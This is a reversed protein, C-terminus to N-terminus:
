ILVGLSRRIISSLLKVSGKNNIKECAANFREFLDNAKEKLTHNLSNIYADGESTLGIGEFDIGDVFDIDDDTIDSDVFGLNKLELINHWYDNRDLLGNELLDTVVDNLCEWREVNGVSNSMAKTLLLYNLQLDNLNKM